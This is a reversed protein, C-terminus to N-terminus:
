LTAPAPTAAPPAFRPRFWHSLMLGFNVALAGLTVALLSCGGRVATENQAMIAGGTLLLGGLFSWYGLAQLRASYMEGLAPVRGLGIRASYVRFWVQFPIIKYLMGVIGFTLVGFIGLFGYLNELQGHFETWELGPQALMLGLLGTPVLLAVATLFYRMGWDLSGRKRVKLIARLEWLYLGLGGVLVAAGALKWRSQGLLAPFTAALGLNLLAVSGGARLRSQVESISFMPVLKYSVGVFLMVFFGVLGAHAHAHMAGLPLFRSMFTGAAQVLLLLVGLAGQQASPATSLCKGAVVSLGVLVTFCLWGLAAAIATAVVSWQKVRCLTRALNYAFLGIGLAFVSGWHGVQKLNWTHFTWVMGAVGLAHLVFQWRALQESFLQTELAVPVLQYMAGMTTSLLWGLVVLHTVAVAAPSYHYAALVSLERWLWGVALLLAAFGVATFRLPLTASPAHASPGATGQRARPPAKAAASTPSFPAM